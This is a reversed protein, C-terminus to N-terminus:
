SVKDLAELTDIFFMKDKHQSRLVVVVEEADEIECIGLIRFFKLPEGIEKSLIVYNGSM